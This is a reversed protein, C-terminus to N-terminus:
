YWQSDLASLMQVLREVSSSFKLNLGESPDKTTLIQGWNKKREQGM